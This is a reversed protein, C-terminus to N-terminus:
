KGSGKWLKDIFGTIGETIGQLGNQSIYNVLQIILPLLLVILGIAIVLIVIAAIIAYLRLQKNNKIKDLIAMWRANEDNGRYSHHSDHSYRHDGHGYHQNYNSGHHSRKNEFFDDFGMIITNVLHIFVM